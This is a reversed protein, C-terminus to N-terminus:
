GKERTKSQLFKSGDYLNHLAIVNCIYFANQDCAVEAGLGRAGWVKAIISRRKMVM